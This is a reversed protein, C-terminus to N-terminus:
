FSCRVPDGDRGILVSFDESHRAHALVAPIQPLDADVDQRLGSPLSDAHQEHVEQFIFNERFAFDGIVPRCKRM